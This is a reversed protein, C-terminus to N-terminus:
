LELLEVTDKKPAEMATLRAILKEKVVSENECQEILTRVSKIQAPILVTAGGSLSGIVERYAACKQAIVKNQADTLDDAFGLKDAIIASLVDKAEADFWAHVSEKTLRGGNSEAELYAVCQSVSIDSDGISTIAGDSSEYLSRIVKDQVDALYNVFHPILSNISDLISDSEIHPVSVAVSPFAAPTKATSKYGVKALRQGTLPTTKGAVFPIVSHQTSILSMISESENRTQDLVM